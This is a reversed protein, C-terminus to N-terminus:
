KSIQTKMVESLDSASNSNYLLLGGKVDELFPRNLAIVKLGFHLAEYIPLGFSELSSTFVATQSQQILDFLEDRSTLTKVLFDINKLNLDFNQPPGNFDLIALVRIKNNLHPDLLKLASIFVDFNKHKSLSSISIFDFIKPLNKPNPFTPLFPKKLVIQSTTLARVGRAMWESQVWVETTNRIFFRLILKEINLRLAVKLRHTEINIGPLLLCNQLYLISKLPKFFLPPLNGFFLVPIQPTKSSFERLIFEAKLRDWIKPKVPIQPYLGQVEAPVTYRQDYFLGSIQGFPKNVLLEDLLVKGGGTHVNVAYVIM